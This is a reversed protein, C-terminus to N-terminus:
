ERTRCLVCKNFNLLPLNTPMLSVILMGGSHYFNWFLYFWLATMSADIAFEVLPDDPPECRYGM